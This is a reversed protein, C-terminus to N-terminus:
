AARRRNSSATAGALSAAYLQRYLGTQRTIEFERQLQMRGRQAMVQRADPHRLMWDIQRHLDQPAAPEALLGNV